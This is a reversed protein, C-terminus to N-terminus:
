DSLGFDQTGARGGASDGQVRRNVSRLKLQSMPENRPLVSVLCAIRCPDNAGSHDESARPCPQPHSILGPPRPALFRRSQCRHTEGGAPGRSRGLEAM